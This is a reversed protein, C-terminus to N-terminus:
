DKEPPIGLIKEKLRVTLVLSPLCEISNLLVWADEKNLKDLVDDVKDSIFNANPNKYLSRGFMRIGLECVKTVLNRWGDEGKGEVERFLSEFEGAFKSKREM